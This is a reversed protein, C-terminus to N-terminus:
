NSPSPSQTATVTLVIDTAASQCADDDVLHVTLTAEHSDGPDHDAHEDGEETDGAPVDHTETFCGDPLDPLAEDGEEVITTEWLASMTSTGSGVTFTVVCDTGPSMNQCSDSSFDLEASDSDNVRVNVNGAAVSGRGTAEDTFPAYTAGGVVLAAASGLVLAATSIHRLV